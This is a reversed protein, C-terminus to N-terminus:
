KNCRKPNGSYEFRGKNLRRVYKDLKTDLHEEGKNNNDLREDM